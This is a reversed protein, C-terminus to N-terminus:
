GDGAAAEISSLLLGVDIPKVLLAAAGAERVRRESEATAAASMAVIPVGGLDPMERLRRILELGDVGPMMLDTVVVEPRFVPALDLAEGGDSAAYVQHGHRELIRAFLHRLDSCDEVLLLRM